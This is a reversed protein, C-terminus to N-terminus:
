LTVRVGVGPPPGGWEGLEAVVITARTQHFVADRRNVVAVIQDNKRFASARRAVARDREFPARGIDGYACPAVNRRHEYAALRDHKRFSHFPPSQRGTGREEVDFHFFVDINMWQDRLGAALNQCRAMQGLMQLSKKGLFAAAMCDNSSSIFCSTMSASCSSSMVGASISESAGNNTSPNPNSEMSASSSPTAM